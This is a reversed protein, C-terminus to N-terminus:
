TVREVIMRRLSAGLHPAVQECAGGGSGLSSTMGMGSAEGSVEEQRVLRQIDRGEEEKATGAGVPVDARLWRHARSSRASHDAWLSSSPGLPKAFSDENLFLLCLLSCVCSSPGPLPSVQSRPSPLLLGLLILLGGWRPFVHSQPYPHGCM